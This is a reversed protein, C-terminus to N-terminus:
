GRFSHNVEADFRWWDVLADIHEAKAVQWAKHAEAVTSYVGLHKPYKDKVKDSINARYPSALKNVMDSGARQYCVGRPFEGRKSAADLLITNVRHPVFACTKDSYVKNGSLLVDKDLCMNQWPQTEMWSKFTSFRHWSDDVLCQDYSPHKVKFKLCYCRELMGKWKRYYPCTWLVKQRRKGAIRPLELKEQVRYDADNIGVGYVLKM